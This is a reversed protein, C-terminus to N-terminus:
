SCVFHATSARVKKCQTISSPIAIDVARCMAQWGGLNSLNNGFHTSFEDVLLRARQDKYVASKKEWKNQIALRNFATLISVTPDVKLDASSHLGNATHM